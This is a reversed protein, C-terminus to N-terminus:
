TLHNPVCTCGVTVEKLPLHSQRPLTVTVPVSHFGKKQMYMGFDKNYEVCSVCACCAETVAEQGYGRRSCNFITNYIYNILYVRFSSFIRHFVDLGVMTTKPGALEEMKGIYKVVTKVRNIRFCPRYCM